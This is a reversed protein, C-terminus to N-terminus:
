RRLWRHQKINHECATRGLSRFIALHGKKNRNDISMNGNVAEVITDTADKIIFPTILALVAVTIASLVVGVYFPWLASASRLIKAISRVTSDM